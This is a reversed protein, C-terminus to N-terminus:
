ILRVTENTALAGRVETAVPDFDADILRQGTLGLSLRVYRVNLLM